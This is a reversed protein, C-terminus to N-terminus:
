TFLQQDSIESHKFSIQLPVKALLAWGKHRQNLILLLPTLSPHAPHAIARGTKSLISPAAPCRRQAANSSAWGTKPRWNRGQFAPDLYAM